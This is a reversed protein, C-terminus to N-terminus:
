EQGGKVVSIAEETKAWLLTQLTANRAQPHVPETLQAIPHYFEGNVLPKSSTALHLQTLAGDAQTFMALGYLQMFVDGLVMAVQGKKRAEETLYDNMYRALETKIVGPHCSYATVGTGALRAALERAFLVNALKSQGYAKGDEYDDGRQTWLDFRMGEDYAAAEAASSVSVIRAPASAILVEKLLSTLHFHGIHNVGMHTEFGDTTMEFGYTMEQGVFSAGPSKMIGANLVLLHLPLNLALFAAAFDDVSSLSGLDLQLFQVKPYSDLDGALSQVIEEVASKGKSVSRAAVIVHANNRALERATEKGIGTNAGTVICVKGTMDPIDAVTFPEPSTYKRVWGGVAQSLLLPLVAAVLVIACAFVTLCRM